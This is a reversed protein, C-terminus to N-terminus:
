SVEDFAEFRLQHALMRVKELSPEARLDHGGETETDERATLFTHHAIPEANGDM